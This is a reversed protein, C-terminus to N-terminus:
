IILLHVLLVWKLKCKGGEGDKEYKYSVRYFLFIM